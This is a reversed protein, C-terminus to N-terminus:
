ISYKKDKSIRRFSTVVEAGYTDFLRQFLDDLCECAYTSKDLVPAYYFVNGKPVRRVIGKDSMRKLVTTITTYAHSDGLQKVIDSPKQPGNSSWLSEMIKQELGGLM